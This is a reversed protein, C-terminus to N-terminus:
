RTALPRTVRAATGPYGGHRPTAEAASRPRDWSDPAGLARCGSGGTTVERRVAPIGRLRSPGAICTPPLSSATRHTQNGPAITKLPCLPALGQTGMRFAVYDPASAAGARRRPRHSPEALYTPHTPMAPPTPRHPPHRQNAACGDVASGRAARWMGVTPLGGGGGVGRLIYSHRYVAQPHWGYRRKGRGRSAPRWNGVATVPPARPRCRGVCSFLLLFFRSWSSCFFHDLLSVQLTM